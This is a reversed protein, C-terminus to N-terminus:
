SIMKSISEYRFIDSNFVIFKTLLSHLRNAVLSKYTKGFNFCCTREFSKCFKGTLISFNDYKDSLSLALYFLYFVCIPLPYLEQWTEFQNKNFPFDDILVLNTSRKVLCDHILKFVENDSIGNSNPYSSRIIEGTSILDYKLISLIGQCLSTKGVGSHGAVWIVTPTM